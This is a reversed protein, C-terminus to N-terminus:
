VWRVAGEDARSVGTNFSDSVDRWDSVGCSASLANATRRMACTLIRRCTIFKGFSPETSFRLNDNTVRSAITLHALRRQRSTDISDRVCKIGAQSFGTVPGPLQARNAKTPPSRTLREAVTARESYNSSSTPIHSRAGCMGFNESSMAGYINIRVTVLKMKPPEAATEAPEVGPIIILSTIMRVNLQAKRTFLPNECTGSSATTRRTKEPIEWKGAGENRRWEMNVEIVENARLVESNLAVWIEESVRAWLFDAPIGRRIRSSHTATRLLSTKLASSPSQPSYPPTHRQAPIFPCPLRFFGSFVRRGAAEDLVIGVHSSVEPPSGAPFQYMYKLPRVRVDKITPASGKYHSRHTIPGTSQRVNVAAEPNTLIRWPTSWYRFYWSRKFPKSNYGKCTPVPGSRTDDLGFNLRLPGMLKYGWPCHWVQMAVWLVGQYGVIVPRFLARGHATWSVSWGLLVLSSTAGPNLPVAANSCM